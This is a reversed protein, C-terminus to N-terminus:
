FSHLGAQSAPNHLSRQRQELRHLSNFQSLLIQHQHHAMTLRSICGMIYAVHFFTKSCRVRAPMKNSTSITWARLRQPICSKDPAGRPCVLAALPMCSSSLQRLSHAPRADFGYRSLLQLTTVFHGGDVTTWAEGGDNFICRGVNPWHCREM